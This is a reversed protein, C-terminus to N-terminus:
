SSVPYAKMLPRYSPYLEERVRAEISAIETSSPEEVKMHPHSGLHRRWMAVVRRWRFIGVPGVSVETLGTPLPPNNVVRLLGSKERM